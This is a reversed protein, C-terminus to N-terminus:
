SRGQQKCKCPIQATNPINPPIQAINPGGFFFTVDNEIACELTLFDTSLRHCHSARSSMEAAEQVCNIITGAGTCVPHSATLTMATNYPCTLYHLLLIPSINRRRLRKSALNKLKKSTLDRVVTVLPGWVTGRGEPQASM